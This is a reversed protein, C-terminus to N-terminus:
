SRERQQELWRQHRLTTGCRQSCTTREPPQLWRSPWHTIVVGCVVCPRTQPAHDAQRKLAHYRLHLAAKFVMLNDPADNQKNEDIHHVHEGPELLRGIKEELVLRGRKVYGSPNAHPHTPAHKWFYGHHLFEGGKWNWRDPGRRAILARWKARREEAKPGHHRHWRSSCSWSCFTRKGYAFFETECAPCVHRRFAGVIPPAM